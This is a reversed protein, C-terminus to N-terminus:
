FVCSPIGSAAPINLVLISNLNSVLIRYRQGQSRVAAESRVNNGTRNKSDGPIQSVTNRLVLLFAAQALQRLKVCTPRHLSDM